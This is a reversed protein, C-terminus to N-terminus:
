RKRKTNKGILVNDVFLRLFLYILLFISVPWLAALGFYDDTNEEVEDTIKDYAIAGVLVFIFGIIYIILVYWLPHM